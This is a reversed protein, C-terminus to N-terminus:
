EARMVEPVMGSRDLESESLHTRFLLLIKTETGCKGRFDILNM